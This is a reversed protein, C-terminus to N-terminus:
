LGYCLKEEHGFDSKLIGLVQWRQYQRAEPAVGDHLNLNLPRFTSHSHISLLSRSLKLPAALTQNWPPSSLCLKVLVLSSSAPITMATVALIENTLKQARFHILHFSSRASPPKTDVVVVSCFPSGQSPRLRPPSCLQADLQSRRCRPRNIHQFIPNPSRPMALSMFSRQSHATAITLARYLILSATTSPSSPMVVSSSQLSRLILISRQDFILSM